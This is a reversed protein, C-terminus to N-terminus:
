VPYNLVLVNIAQFSFGKIGRCLDHGMELAEEEQSALILARV